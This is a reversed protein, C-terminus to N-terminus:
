QEHQLYTLEGNKLPGGDVWDWSVLQIYASRIGGGQFISLSAARNDYRMLELEDLM